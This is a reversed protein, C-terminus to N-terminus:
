FIELGSEEGGGSGSRRVTVPIDEPLKALKKLRICNALDKM